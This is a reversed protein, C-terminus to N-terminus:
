RAILELSPAPASAPALPRDGREPVLSEPWNCFRLGTVRNLRELAGQPLRRHLYVVNNSEVSM